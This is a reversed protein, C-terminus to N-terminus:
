LLRTGYLIFQVLVQYSLNNNSVTKKKKREKGRVRWEQANVGHSGQAYLDLMRGSLEM